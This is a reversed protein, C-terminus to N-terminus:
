KTKELARSDGRQALYSPTGEAAVEDVAQNLEAQAKAANVQLAEDLAVRLALMDNQIQNMPSVLDQWYDDERFKMPRCEPDALLESLHVRLRYIPGAFLNSMRIIDHIVLPMFLILSPIWPWFQDFLSSAHRGIGWDPHAYYQFCISGLAIYLIGVTWYLVVRGILVGQVTGDIWVKQRLVM